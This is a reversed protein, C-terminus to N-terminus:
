AWSVTLNETTTLFSQSLHSVLFIPTGAPSYRCSLSTVSKKGGFNHSTVKMNLITSFALFDLIKIQLMINPTDTLVATALYEAHNSCGRLIYKFTPFDNSEGGNAFWFWTFPFVLVLM